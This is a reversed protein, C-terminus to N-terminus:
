PGLEGSGLAALKIAKFCKDLDSVSTITELDIVVQVGLLPVAQASIAATSAAAVAADLATIAATVTDWAADATDVHAETPSEADAQLADMADQVALVEAASPGSTLATDLLADVVDPNVVTITAEPKGASGLTAKFSGLAM